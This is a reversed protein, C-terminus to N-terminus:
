PATLDVFFYSLRYRALCVQGHELLDEFSIQTSGQYDGSILTWLQFLVYAKSVLYCGQVAIQNKTLLNPHLNIALDSNWSNLVWLCFILHCKKM